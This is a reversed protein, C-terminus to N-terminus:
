SSTVNKYDLFKMNLSFFSKSHLYLMDTVLLTILTRYFM